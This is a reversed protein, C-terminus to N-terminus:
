TGAQHVCRPCGLCMVFGGSSRKSILASPRVLWGGGWDASRHPLDIGYLAFLCQALAGDVAERTAASADAAPSDPIRSPSPGPSQEGAASPEPAEADRLIGMGDAARGADAASQGDIPRVEPSGKGLQQLRRLKAGLRELCHKLFANGGRALAGREALLGACAGLLAAMDGCAEASGPGSGSGAVVEQAACLARVAALLQARRLETRRAGGSAAHVDALAWYCKEVHAVLQASVGRLLRAALQLLAPSGLSCVRELFAPLTAVAQTRNYGQVTGKSQVRPSGAAYTCRGAAERAVRRTDDYTLWSCVDRCRLVQAICACEALLKQLESTVCGSQGQSALAAVPM